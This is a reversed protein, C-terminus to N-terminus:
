LFFKIQLILHHSNSDFYLQFLELGLEFTWDMLRPGYNMEAHVMALPVQDERSVDCPKCCSRM